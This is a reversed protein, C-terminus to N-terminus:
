KIILWNDNYASEANESDGVQYFKNKRTKTSKATWFLGRDYHQNTISIGLVLSSCYVKCLFYRCVHLQGSRGFGNTSSAIKRWKISRGWKDFILQGYLCPNIEPNQIRNWQNIHRNKHWYWVTKIITTKYYLKIDSITIGGVKKKKTLIESVIQPWKHNWICKQFAQKIGTLYTMPVKFPIANFRYISKPLISIKIIDISQFEVM